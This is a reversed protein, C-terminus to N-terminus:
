NDGNVCKSAESLLQLMNLAKAQEADPYKESLTGTACDCFQKAKEPNFRKSVKTECDSKFSKIQKKTWHKVAAKAISKCSETSLSFPILLLLAIFLRYRM